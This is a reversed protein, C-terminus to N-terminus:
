QALSAGLFRAHDGGSACAPDPFGFFFIPCNTCACYNVLIRHPSHQEAFPQTWLQSTAPPEIVFLMGPSTALKHWPKVIEMGAGVGAQTKETSAESFANCPPPAHM